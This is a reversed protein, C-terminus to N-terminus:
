FRHSQMPTSTNMTCTPSTRRLLTTRCTPPTTATTNLNEPAFSARSSRRYPAATTGPADWDLVGAAVPIGVLSATFSKTSSGIAFITEETVPEQKKVDSMGFGRTLIVEDGKVVAIAMGPNHHQERKQELKAM